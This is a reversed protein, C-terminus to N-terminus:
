FFFKLIEDFIRLAYWTPKKRSFAKQYPRWRVYAPQTARLYHHLLKQSKSRPDNTEQREWIDLASFYESGHEKLLKTVENDWRYASAVQVSRMEIGQEEYRAFWEPKVTRLQNNQEVYDQLHHLRFLDIPHRTPCNILEWCQYWRNRSEMRAWDTYKFHLFHIEQLTVLSSNVSKPLHNTHIVNDTAYPADDDVYIRKFLMGHWYQQSGPWLNLCSLQFTIGPEANLIMQWEPSSQCNATLVEDADLVVLIRPGPIERARDFLVSRMQYENFNDGPPNDVLIVKPFRAAIERSGDTSHQDAIIIHDAWLSACALFRELIWAEDRVPTLCIIKPRNQM